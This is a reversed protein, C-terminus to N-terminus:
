TPNLRMPNFFMESGCVRAEQRERAVVASGVKWLANRHTAQLARMDALAHAGIAPRKTVVLQRERGSGFSEHTLKGGLDPPLDLRDLFRHVRHRGDKTADITLSEENSLLFNRLLLKESETCDRLRDHPTTRVQEAVGPMAYDPADPIAASVSARLEECLAAPFGAGAQTGAKGGRWRGGVM